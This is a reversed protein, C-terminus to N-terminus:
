AMRRLVLRISGDEEVQESALEFGEQRLKERAAHYTYRQTLKQLFEEQRFGRIGWWDAVMEYFDGQRVFGIEGGPVRVKLEVRARQGGWGRVEVEGEQCRLGLDELAMKLYDKVVIKTEIRAFHSV